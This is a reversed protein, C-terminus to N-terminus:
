LDAPVHAALPLKRRRRDLENGAFWLTWGVLAVLGLSIVRYVIVGATAYSTAMGGRSLAIILAGDIVGLGGPLLPVSSAAMGAAYTVLALEIGPGSAGVARCAAILCLLDYAWNLSAFILGLAWDRKRPRILTLQEVIGRVIADGADPPQRRVRNWVQLGRRGIRLMVDPRHVLRRLAVAAALALLIEGFALANSGGGSHAFTAGLVIIVTLTLSSLVGSSLLGFSALPGNVGWARLKAGGTAMMQRQLRAFMGMSAAEAVLALAVWGWHLHRLLHGARAIFPAVFVLEVAFLGLVFVMVATKAIHHRHAHARERDALAPSTEVLVRRRDVSLPVRSLGGADGPIVADDPGISIPVGVTPVDPIAV